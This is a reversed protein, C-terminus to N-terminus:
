AEISSSPNDNQFRWLRGGSSRSHFRPSKPEFWYIGTLRRENILMYGSIMNYFKSLDEETLLQPRGSRQSDEFFRKELATNTAPDYGRDYARNQIDYVTSVGISAAAAAEIVPHGAEVLAFAHERQAISM